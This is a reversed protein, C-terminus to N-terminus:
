LGIEAALNRRFLTGERIYRRVAVSKHRTHRAIDRKEVGASAASTAFGARLSHGGFKTEDLGALTACRKVARAVGKDSLSAGVRGGKTVSRFVRGESIGAVTLWHELAAVPCIMSGTRGVAVLEGFGDQDSKSRRVSIRVGEPLIAIDGIDLAALEGRRLASGFGLLLLARDRIGLLDDGCSGALQCILPLTAAEVQRQASGKERRLGRIVNRIAPHKTDLHYDAQRHVASITALRRQLTAVSLTDAHGGIYAGIVAPAAPLPQVSARECWASFHRWDSAYARRTADARSQRALDAARSAAGALNAQALANSSHESVLLESM